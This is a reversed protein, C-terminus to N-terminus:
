FCQGEIEGAENPGGIFPAENDLCSLTGGVVNRTVDKPFPGTNESVRANGAANVRRVSLFEVANRRVMLHGRELNVDEVVVAANPGGGMGQIGLSGRTITVFNLIAVRGNRIAVDGRVRLDSANVNDPREAGMWGGVEVNRLVADASELILLNDRITADTVLCTTNPPVVVNQHTGTVAGECVTRNPSTAFLPDPEPATPAPADHCGVVALFALAAGLARPSPTLM